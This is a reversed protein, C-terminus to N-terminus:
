FLEFVSETEAAGFEAIIDAVDYTPEETPTEINLQDNEREFEM